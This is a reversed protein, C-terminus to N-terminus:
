CVELDIQKYQVIEKYRGNFAFKMEFIETAERNVVEEMYRYDAKELSRCPNDFMKMLIDSPYLLSQKMRKKSACINRLSEGHGQYPSRCGIKELHKELVVEDYNKWDTICNKNKNKHRELVEVDRVM